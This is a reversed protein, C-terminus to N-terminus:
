KFTFKCENVNMYMWLILYFYILILYINKLCYIEVSVGSKVSNSPYEGSDKKVLEIHKM